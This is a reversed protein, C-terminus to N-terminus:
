AGREHIERVATWSVYGFISYSCFYLSIRAIMRERSGRLFFLVRLEQVRNIDCGIVSLWVRHGDM